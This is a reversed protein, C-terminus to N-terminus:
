RSQDTRRQNRANRIDDFYPDVSEMEQIVAQLAKSM